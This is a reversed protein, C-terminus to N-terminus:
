RSQLSGDSLFKALLAQLAGNGNFDAAALNRRCDALSEEFAAILRPVAQRPTARM